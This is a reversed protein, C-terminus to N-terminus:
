TSPSEAQYGGTVKKWKKSFSRRNDPAREKGKKLREKVISALLAKVCIIDLVMM